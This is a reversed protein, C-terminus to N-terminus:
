DEVVTAGPLDASWTEGSNPDDELLLITRGITPKGCASCNM